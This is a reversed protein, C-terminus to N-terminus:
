NEYNSEAKKLNGLLYDISKQKLEDYKEYKDQYNIVTNYKKRIEKFSSNYDVWRDQLDFLSLLHELRSGMKSFGIRNFVMFQRNYILSMVNAHFSDTMVFDAHKILSIFEAPGVDYLKVDGFSIDQAYFRGSNGLLHPLTVIKLQHEKAYKKAIKRTKSGYGLFYCFMYPEDILRKASIKDWDKRSLLLTPDAVVEVPINVLDEIDEKGKSERVSIADFNKLLEKYINKWGSDLQNAISAAYSFKYINEPVFQLFYGKKFLAPNWVQDSGCVFVDFDDCSEVLTQDNYVQKSHPILNDFENFFTNRKKIQVKTAKLLKGLIKQMMAHRYDYSSFLKILKNTKSQKNKKSSQYYQIQKAGYGKENLFYTLAFAQLKGGYNYNNYFPSLIGIRMKKM